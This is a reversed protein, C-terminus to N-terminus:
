PLAQVKWWLEKGIRAGYAATKSDASWVPPWIEDGVPGEKIVKGTDADAIVIFRKAKEMPGKRARYAIRRGDPSFVPTVAMDYAPSRKVDDPKGIPSVIM